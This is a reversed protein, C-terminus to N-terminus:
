CSLNGHEAMSLITFPQNNTLLPEEDIGSPPNGNDSVTFKFTRSKSHSDALPAHELNARIQIQAIKSDAWLNPLNLQM